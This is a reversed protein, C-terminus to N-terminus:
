PVTVWNPASEAGNIILRFPVVSGSILNPIPFQFRLQNANVVEYQGAGLSGAKVRTLLQGGVFVEITYPPKFNDDPFIGGAVTVIQNVPSVSAIGPTVVFPTQNSTTIFDRLVNGPMLRRVIVKAVASYIGPMITEAGAAAQITAIIPSDSATVNWNAGVEVPQAFNRNDLVLTTQDGALESGTFIVQSGVPAEAPTVEVTRPAIEGPITFSVTSKSGDLRPAGRTFTYVGFTLVRGARTRPLEPELVVPSVEYFAALRVPTTIWHSSVENQPLPLQTIRFRNGKGSLDPFAKFIKVNPIVETTDDLVPHLHLANMAYGLMSQEKYISNDNGPDSHGYLMYHLNLGVPSYRIPPEDSSPPPLNKFHPDEIVHYLYLGISQEGKLQDPPLPSVDVNMVLRVRTEILAIIAQTVLSLDLLM